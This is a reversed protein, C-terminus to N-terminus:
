RFFFSRIDYPIAMPIEMALVDTEFCGGMMNSQM